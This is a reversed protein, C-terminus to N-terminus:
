ASRHRFLSDARRLSKALIVSESVRKTDGDVMATTWRELVVANLTRMSQHAKAVGNLRQDLEYDEDGLSGSM